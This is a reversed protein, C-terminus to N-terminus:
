RSGAAPNGTRDRDAEELTALRARVRETVPGAPGPFLLPARGARPEEGAEGMVERVPVVGGTTNTLFLEEARTLLGRPVRGVTLPVSAGGVELAERELEALLRERVIGGLCGSEIAPTHLAGDAVLFVNSVTGETLEDAQNLLLAEWAGARRAEERALVYRLRSTTKLDELPDDRLKRVSSVLVSVGGAPIPEVERATIVLTPEGGPVGRSLTLRVAARRGGLADIYTALASRPEVPPPWPISLGAAGRALRALHADLFSAHGDQVLLTEFAALGLLFGQDEAALVAAGAPHRRGDVLVLFPEPGSM